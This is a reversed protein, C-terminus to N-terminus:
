GESGTFAEEQDDDPIVWVIQSRRVAMFKIEYLATGDLAYVTADTVALFLERRDLEDKVRENQRVHINGHILNSTTQINAAVPIKSIVDTFIKGKESFEYAM